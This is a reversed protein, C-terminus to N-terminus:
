RGLTLRTRPEEFDTDLATTLATPSHGAHALGGHRFRWARAMRAPQIDPYDRLSAEIRGLDGALRANFRLVLLLPLSDPKVRTRISVVEDRGGAIRRMSRSVDLPGIQTPGVKRVREVAPPVYGGLILSSLRLVIPSYAFPAPDKAALFKLISSLFPTGQAASWAELEKLMVEFHPRPLKNPDCKLLLVNGSQFTYEGIYGMLQIRRSELPGEVIPKEEIELDSAVKELYHAYTVFEAWDGSLEAETMWEYEYKEVLM